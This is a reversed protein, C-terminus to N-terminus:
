QVVVTTAATRGFTEPTYMEEVQTPPVVFTGFTTARALYRYHYMGAPMHDVFFLVRNDRVERRYWSANLARGHARADRESECDDCDETQTVTTGPVDLWSATTALGTDVAEFGAPLPDELVVYSRPSPTVVVLDALVLDGAKFRADSTSAISEIAKTLEPPTVDRVAKQVFFGADLPTTPLATRVYALRAEYFLIGSGDKQFILPAGPTQPLKAFAVSARETRLKGDFVTKLISDDGFWAQATFQAPTSEFASKYADLAVLAYATEQTSRWTGGRREALIGRALQPGLPHKPDAALLARLVLASTRVPSDFLIAYEDGLNEGAYAADNSIRLESAIESALTKVSEAPGKGVALAHLLYARAFLPLQKRTEFLNAMYGPDPAGTSALVDVVMAQTARDLYDRNEGALENRLYQRARELANKPVREGKQSAQYLAWTAYASAFANDWSSEPWMAFGGSPLQRSLINRVTEAVLQNANAPLAFGFSTALERLPVLPLLRSSLQETCEYPYTVLSLASGDLGVLASPAVTVDLGGVDRRVGAFNGLKEGVATGTAGYLAVTEKKGPAEVTRTVVVADREAGASVDFRLAASGVATAELPFRVELSGREPLEIARDAPGDLVLGTVTAHVNVHTPGLGKSSVVIGAEAADGARLFRPLNPRAMLKKSAVISSSGFGYRDTEAVAVAMIRYTTLGDPLKFKVRAHGTADTTVHPDFFATTRFDQRADGEGGGGGEAGKSQGFAQVMFDDLGLKAMSERSEITAVQLPRPATFVPLPDPTRYGTLMLVGEDVAYVTLEAPAPQKQATRVAVDVTVEEGPHFDKKSPSVAVDLRRAEADIPLDAYGMRYLAGVGKTKASRLLHVSVFANPRLDDTIPVSVTSAAGKLTVKQSRYVGAREVTVLAEAEAFPSKVLVQATDGVSYQKKNPVLDVLGQDNDAFAAGAGSGTGYFSVAAETKNGHADKSRAFIVFYGTQDLHFSCPVPTVATTVDCVDTVRDVVRSVTSSEGSKSKERATTWRRQVVEVHINKGALRKGDPTVAILKSTVEGPSSVFYEEPGAVGIYFEAPHVLASATTAIAQRSVDTVEADVRLVQTSRQDPLDLKTDFSLQGRADLKATANALQGYDSAAEPIDSRYASSDTSFGDTDPVTFWTHGHTVSYTVDAGPMPAGFLYDAGLAVTAKAGRVYSPASTEASVKFEAPRYEAVAFGEGFLEKGKEAEVRVSWRGLSAAGPVKLDTSFTGFRSTTVATTSVPEDEPSNLVLSLKKGAVIANGTPTEQRVIGKVRVTDAPRYVGRDAFLMGYMRQTGTLDVPVPLRWEDIHSAFREFNWDQGKSVVIMSAPDDEQAPDYAGEPITAFGSADTRYSAGLAAGHAQVQVTADAIPAGTDLATVWVLSGHRSVKASIGVNTVRLVRVSESVQTPDGRDNAYRLGMVVVGRDRGLVDDVRLAERSVANKGGGPTVTRRKTQKLKSLAVFQQTSEPDQYIQSLDRADVSATFLEYRPVNVAGIDITRGTSPLLTDGTLGFDATPQLDDFTTTMTWPQAMAQGFEDTLGAAVTFTYKTGPRFPGALSFYSTVDEPDNGDTKSKLPPTITLARELDKRKVSNNLSISFYSNPQCSRQPAGDCDYHDVRLPAYTFNKIEIPVGTPLPGEKSTFNQSIRLSVASDKPLREKPTLVVKRDLKPDPHKVSFAVQGKKGGGEVVLTAAKQLAAADVPQNWELTFQTDTPLGHEQNSSPSSSVIKPRPTTFELRYAASLTSGDLARTGAPVEVVYRTAGPLHATRPVFRLAKTGVWLWQGDIPPTITVPPASPTEARELVRLPRNFVLSLEAVSTAEGKPAAFVVGFPATELLPGREAGLALTGHTPATPPREGPACAIGVL